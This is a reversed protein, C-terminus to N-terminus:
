TFVMADFKEEYLELLNAAKFSISHRAWSVGSRWTTLMCGPTPIDKM